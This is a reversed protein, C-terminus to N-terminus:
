WGKVPKGDDRYIHGCKPCKYIPVNDRSMAWLLGESGCMPCIGIVNEKM